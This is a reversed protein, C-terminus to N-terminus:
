DFRGKVNGNGRTAIIQKNFIKIGPYDVTGKTSKALQNIAVEDFKVISIPAKGSSIANIATRLDVGEGKWNDRYSIGDIKPVLDNKNKLEEIENLIRQYAIENNDNLARDLEKQLWDIQTLTKSQNATVEHDIINKYTLMSKKLTQEAQLLFNLPERFMDEIKKGAQNIPKKLDKRMDDLSKKKAKIKKLMESANSYSRDDNLIFNKAGNLYAEATEIQESQEKSIVVLDNM